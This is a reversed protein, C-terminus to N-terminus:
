LVYVFFLAFLFPILLYRFAFTPNAVSILLVVLAGGVYVPSTVYDLIRGQSSVAVTTKISHDVASKNSSANFDADSFSSTHHQMAQFTSVGASAVSLTTSRHSTHKHHAHKPLASSTQPINQTISAVRVNNQVNHSHVRTEHDEQLDSLSSTVSSHSPQKAYLTKQKLPTPTIHTTKTHQPALTKPCVPLTTSNVAHLVFSPGTNSSYHDYNNQTSSQMTHHKSAIGSEVTINKKAHTEQSASKNNSDTNKGHTHLHSEELQDLATGSHHHSNLSATSSSPVLRSTTEDNSPHSQESDTSIFSTTSATAQLKYPRENHTNNHHVDGTDLLSASNSMESTNEKQLAHNTHDLDIHPHRAAADGALHFPGSESVDFAYSENYLEFKGGLAKPISEIPM